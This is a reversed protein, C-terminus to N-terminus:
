QERAVEIRADIAERIVAETRAQEKGFDALGQSLPYGALPGVVLAVEVPSLGYLLGILALISALAAAFFKKSKLLDITM